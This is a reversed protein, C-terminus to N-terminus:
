IYYEKVLSVTVLPEKSIINYPKICIESTCFTTKCIIQQKPLLLM